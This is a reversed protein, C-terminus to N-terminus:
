IKFRECRTLKSGTFLQYFVFWLWLFNLANKLTFCFLSVCHVLILYHCMFSWPGNFYLGNLSFFTCGSFSHLSFKKYIYIYIYM